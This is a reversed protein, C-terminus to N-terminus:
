KFPIYHGIMDALMYEWIYPSAIILVGIILTHIFSEGVGGKGTISAAAKIKVMAIIGILARAGLDIWFNDAVGIIHLAWSINMAIFTFILMAPIAHLGHKLWHMGAEDKSLFVLEVFGLIIGLALSPGIILEAAAQEVAM